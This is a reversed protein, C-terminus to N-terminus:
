KAARSAAAPSPPHAGSRGQLPRMGFLFRLAPVRRAGEYLAFTLAASLVILLPWSLAPWPAILVLYFGIVVIVTQHLIYVPYSAEALYSLTPSPRDLLRHGFGLLGMLTLWMGALEAYTWAARALSPDPLADGFEYFVLAAVTIAVGTALTWVRHREIKEAFHEDRFLLYGMTFIAAFYFINLGSIEPLAEAFMLIFVVLPWWVPKSWARAVRDLAAGGRESRGILLLPIVAISIMWLFWIFWLHAPSLGGYYDGRGLLNDLAFAKGSTLYELFSGTYGDNTQAGCWTQPPVLVLVGFLLPVGLRLSREGVYTGITRKRLAFYTSAGALLFLLPMHWADLFALVDEIPVSLRRSPTSSNAM